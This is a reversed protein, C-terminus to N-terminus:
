CCSLDSGVGLSSAVGDVLRSARNGAVREGGLRGGLATAERLVTTSLGIGGARAGGVSGAGSLKGGGGDASGALVDM